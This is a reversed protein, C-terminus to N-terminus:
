ADASAQMGSATARGSGALVFGVAVYEANTPV